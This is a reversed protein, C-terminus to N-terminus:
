DNVSSYLTRKGEEIYIITAHICLEMGPLVSGEAMDVIYISSLVTIKAKAESEM